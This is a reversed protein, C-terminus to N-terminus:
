YKDVNNNDAQTRYSSSQCHSLASLCSITIRLKDVGSEDHNDALSSLSSPQYHNLTPLKTCLLLLFVMNYNIM